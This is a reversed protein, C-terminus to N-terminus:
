NYVAVIKVSQPTLESDIKKLRIKLEDLADKHQNVVDITLESSWNAIFFIIENDEVYIADEDDYPNNSAIIDLGNITIGTEIYSSKKDKVYDPFELEQKGNLAKVLRAIVDESSESGTYTYFQLVNLSSSMGM